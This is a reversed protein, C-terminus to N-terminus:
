GFQPFVKFRPLFIDKAPVVSKDHTQLQTEQQTIKQQNSVMNRRKYSPPKERGFCDWLDLDTKYSLDLDKLNNLFPM